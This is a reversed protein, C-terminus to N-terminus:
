LMKPCGILANSIERISQVITKQYTPLEEQKQARTLRLDNRLKGGEDPVIDKLNKRRYRDRLAAELKGNAFLPINELREVACLYADLAIVIWNATAIRQHHSNAVGPDGPECRRMVIPSAARIRTLHVTQGTGFFAITGDAKGRPALWLPPSVLGVAKGLRIPDLGFGSM